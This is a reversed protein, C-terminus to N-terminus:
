ADSPVLDIPVDPHSGRREIDDLVALLEDGLRSEGVLAEAGPCVRHTARRPVGRAPQQSVLRTGRPIVGGCEDCRSDVRRRVLM